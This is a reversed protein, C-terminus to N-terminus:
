GSLRPNYAAPRNQDDRIGFRDIVNASPGKDSPISGALRHPRHMARQRQEIPGFGHRDM